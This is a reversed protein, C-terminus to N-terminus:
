RARPSTLRTVIAAPSTLKRAGLRFHIKVLRHCGALGLLVVVTDRLSSLVSTLGIEPSGVLQVFLGLMLLPAFPVTKTRRLMWNCAVLCGSFFLGAAMVGIAGFDAVGIAPVSTPYDIQLFPKAPYIELHNLLVEDVDGVPKAGPYLAKPVALATSFSIAEGNSSKGGIVSAHVVKAFFDFPGSRLYHVESEEVEGNITTLFKLTADIVESPKSAALIESFDNNRVHQYYTVLGGLLLLLLPAAKAHKALYRIPALGSHLWNVSVWLAALFLLLRRSGIPSENTLVIIVLIAAAAVHPLLSRSRHGVAHRVVLHAIAGILLLTTISSLAVEWTSFEVQGIALFYEARSFMLAAPGYAFVLWLRWLLWAGAVVFFAGPPVTLAASRLDQLAPALIRALLLVIAHFLLMLLHSLLLVELPVAISYEQQPMAYVFVITMIVYAWLIPSGHRGLVLRAWTLLIGGFLMNLLVFTFNVTEVGSM